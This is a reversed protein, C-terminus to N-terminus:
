KLKVETAGYGFKEKRGEKFFQIDNRKSLRKHIEEKLIGAGVGHIIVLTEVGDLIAKDLAKEYANIQIELMAAASLMGTNSELKEIHLDIERQFIRPKSTQPVVPKEPRHSMMKEKLQQPDIAVQQGDMQVLIGNKDWIPIPQTAKWNLHSFSIRFEATPPMEGQSPHFKLMQFGLGIWHHTEGLPIAESLTAMSKPEVLLSELFQHVPRALKYITLFIQFDTHNIVAMEALMPSKSIGALYIGEKIFFMAARPRLMAPKEDAKQKQLDRKDEERASVLVVDNRHMPIELGENLLVTLM